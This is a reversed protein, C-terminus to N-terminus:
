MVCCYNFIDDPQYPMGNYKQELNPLKFKFEKDLIAWSLPEYNEFEFDSDECARKHFALIRSGKELTESDSLHNPICTPGKLALPKWPRRPGWLIRKAVWAHPFSYKKGM